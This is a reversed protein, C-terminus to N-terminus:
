NFLSSDVDAFKFNGDDLEAARVRILLIREPLLERRKLVCESFCGLLLRLWWSSRRLDVRRSEVRHLQANAFKFIRDNLEAARVRILLIRELCLKRSKSVCESLHGLQIRLIRILLIRKLCLKRSKLVCESLRGLQIRLIRILLIRKLCM